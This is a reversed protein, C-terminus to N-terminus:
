MIPIVFICHFNETIATGETGSMFREINQDTGFESITHLNHADDTGTIIARDSVSVLIYEGTRGLKAKTQDFVSTDTLAIFGALVAVISGQKDKVPVAIGVVLKQSFRGVRPKGIALEGSTMVQKFYELESFDATDRNKFHPHDAVGIGHKDIVVVGLSFLRYIALREELYNRIASRNNIQDAPLHNAIDQLAVTRLRIKQELDNATFNVYTVQQNSLVEQLDSSLTSATYFYLPLLGCCILFFVSIGIKNPLSLSIFKM